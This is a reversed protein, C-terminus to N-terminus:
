ASKHGVVLLDVSSRRDYSKDHYDGFCEVRDAGAERMWATLDDQEIGSWIQCDSEMEPASPEILLFDVFAKDGTRHVGKLLVHRKKDMEVPVCKQWKKVGEAMRWLNAIQIFVGGGPRVARMMQKLTTQMMQTSEALAFSNGVCIALDFSGAEPVPQDYGRQVWSLGAPAGNIQRAQELMDASLDAAEVQLGWGHLMGAHRGSGCAVDLVRKVSFENCLKRYFPEENALRKPWNIMGDYVDAREKFTHAM